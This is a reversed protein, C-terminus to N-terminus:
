LGHERFDEWLSGGIKQSLIEERTMFWAAEVEAPDCVIDDERFDGRAVFPHFQIRQGHRDQAKSVYAAFPESFILDQLGVEEFVERKAADLPNEMWDVCGTVLAAIRGPYTSKKTSRKHVLVQGGSEVLVVVARGLLRHEFAQKRPACMISWGRTSDIVEIHDGEPIPIPGLLKELVIDCRETEVGSSNKYGYKTYMACAETLVSATEIMAKKYGLQLARQELAKLLFAGLGIGRIDSSLYMKRIEIVKKGRHPVEYFAATGLVQSTLTNEIVWFEGSSYSDEVEVVDRDAAIPDWDLGYDKLINGILEMCHLRDRPQWARIVLDDYPIAFAKVHRPRVSSPLLTEPVAKTITPDVSTNTMTPSLCFRPKTHVSCVRYDQKNRRSTFTSSESPNRGLTPISSSTLFCLSSSSSSIGHIAATAQEQQTAM